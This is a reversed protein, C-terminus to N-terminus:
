ICYAVAKEGFCLRNEKNSLTVINRAIRSASETTASFPSLLAPFSILLHSFIKEANLFAAV